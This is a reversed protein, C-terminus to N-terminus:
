ETSESIDISDEDPIEGLTDEYQGYEELYDLFNRDTRRSEFINYNEETYNLKNDGVLSEIIIDNYKISSLIYAMDLITENLYQEEVYAEIKAYNYMFEIFYKDDIRNIELYGKKENINISRSYYGDENIKYENDVKHYYSVLDIYLYIKNQKYYLISNNETKNKLTVGKPLYYKYGQLTVNNLTIKDKLVNDVIKDISSNDIITISCGTVLFVTLLLVIIKKM